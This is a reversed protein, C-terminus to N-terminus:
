TGMVIGGLPTLGMTTDVPKGGRVAALSAGNGLHALVLRGAAADPGAERRLEEVLYQYSLGHFGYRQVGEDFYERPLAFQRARRPMARHFATDFCAVQSVGPLARSLVEIATIEGPLHNPALPVLRRLDAVVEPTVRAPETRHPGGQVVRHGVA